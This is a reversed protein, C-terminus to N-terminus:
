APLIANIHICLVDILGQKGGVQTQVVLFAQYFEEAEGAEEPIQVFRASANFTGSNSLSKGARTVPPTSNM